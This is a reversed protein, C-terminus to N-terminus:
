RVIALVEVGKPCDHVEETRGSPSAAWKFRGVSSHCDGLANAWTGAIPRANAWTRRDCRVPVAGADLVGALPGPQALRHLPCYRAGPCSRKSVPAGAMGLAAVELDRVWVCPLAERFDPAMAPRAVAEASGVEAALAEPSAPLGALPNPEAM